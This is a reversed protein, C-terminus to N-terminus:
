DEADNDKAFPYWVIMIVLLVVIGVLEYNGNNIVRLFAPINILFFIILLKVAFEEGADTEQRAITINQLEPRNFWLSLEKGTVPRSVSWSLEERTREACMKGEKYRYDQYYTIDGPEVRWYFAGAAYEVKGGYNYLSKLPTRKDYPVLNVDVDPWSESTRSLDWHGDSEVLWMFGKQPNYLLYECWHDSTYSTAGGGGNVYSLAGSPELEALYVMGIVTWRVGGIKGVEGMKFVMDQEQALRMSHRGLLNAKGESLDLESHCSPCIINQAVGPYWTLSAGCNPCSFASKDGKLQGSSRMIEGNTRLFDCRLNDLTVMKGLYVIPKQSNESYDLTLFENRCRFDASLVDEDSKLVFPLEGQANAKVSKARRVDAAVFSKNKHIIRTTGALLDDFTPIKGEISANTTIVYQGSFDALWGYHGNSFIIYWENWCGRDYRIQLRGIIEFTEGHYHGSTHLQFPSFDEILASKKGSDVASDGSRILTSQCYECVVLASTASYVPVSAGCSPCTLSFVANLAM